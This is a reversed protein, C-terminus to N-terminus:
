INIKKGQVQTFSGLQCLCMFFSEVRRPQRGELEVQGPKLRREDPSLEGAWQMSSQAGCENAMAPNNDQYCCSVSEM